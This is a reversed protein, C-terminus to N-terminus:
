AAARRRPRANRCKSCRRWGREDVLDYPHNKPCRDKIANHHRGARVLDLKNETSTGYILNTLAPNRKNDDKHRVEMGPPCPGIFAEAVLQHLGRKRRVGRYSLTVYPYGTTSITPKLLGAKAWARPLSSVRGLDSVIYGGEFGVVPLWREAM